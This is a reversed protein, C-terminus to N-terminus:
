QDSAETEESEGLADILVQRTDPSLKLISGMGDAELIARAIDDMHRPPLGSAKMWAEIQERSKQKDTM